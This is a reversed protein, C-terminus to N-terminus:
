PLATYVPDCGLSRVAGDSVLLAGYQDTACLLNPNQAM